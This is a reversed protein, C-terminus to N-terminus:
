QRFILRYFVSANTANVPASYQTADSSGPVDVWNTGLGAGLSNTQAQLTWGAHDAPWALNLQSGSVQATINTPTLNVQGLYRVQAGNFAGFSQSNAVSWTGALSQATVVLNSFIVYNNGAQFSTCETPVATKTVGNMTFAAAANGSSVAESGNCSFLVINYLGNPLAFTFSQTGYSIAYSDLLPVTTDGTMSWSGGDVVTLGFGTETSGDDTLGATSAYTGTTWSSPGSIINWTTGTGFGPIGTGSYTGADGGETSHWEFNVTVPAAPAAYMTLVGGSSNANGQVNAANLSYTGANALQLNTLTLTRNTQGILNTYGTGTDLQWQNTIPLTGTFSATFTVSGGVFRSAATPSIDSAIVPSTESAVVVMAVEGTTLLSGNSAILRYGVTLNDLGTTDVPLTLSTAGPINTMTGTNGGDTQWQYTLGSGNATATLTVPSGAYVVNTPFITPPSVLPYGARAVGIVFTADYDHSSGFTMGGGSVPILALEGNAYNNGSSSSMNEWGAGSAIRGFSYAYATSATLPLNLGSWRFWDGGTLIFNTQSTYTAYLTANTGSVTYIRLVCAQGGAPLGGSSGSGGRVALSTLTYGGADGGTVFTQGPPASNDFWYNLGDPSGGGNSLQSQDFAGVPVPDVTGIDALAANTDTYTLTLTAVASTSVGFSNSVTVTYRYAGVKWGTSNVVLNTANSSPINTLTGGSGGDTQWQYTLPTAGTAAESLTVSAGVVVARAPSFTIANAFPITPGVGIPTLGIDFVADALGTSGFTIAGGNTPILCIQGGAYLDSGGSSSNLGAWGWTATGQSFAYAYTTNPKLVLPSFGSVTIWDGYSYSFSSNTYTALLAANTGSVSYFYLSYRHAASTNGSSGGNADVSVSTLYYGQTNAGTTFTQGPPPLNDDYYNLSDGSGGGNLQSIDYLGSTFTAGDDTLTAGAIQYVTVTTIASTVGGTLNSAVLAYQYNGLALGTTNATFTLGTASPINTLTGGSGGDTRWQYTIPGPGAAPAATLTVATGPTVTSSPSVVPPNVTLSTSITMGADFSADYNHSSSYAITGGASPILCVEGGTYLNGSVNALNEWGASNRHLTYAYTTNPQLGFGLGTWELWDDDTFTFGSQSQYTALLTATSGSVSYLRLTYAQGASPLSGSNGATGIFLSNLVYGNTNSGTTFTQGPPTSNDFYYNLADPNAAGSPVTVQAADDSGPTPATSGYDTLTASLQAQAAGALTLAAILLAIPIPLSRRPLVPHNPKIMLKGHSSKLNIVIFVM